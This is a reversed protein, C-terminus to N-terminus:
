LTSSGKFYVIIKAYFANPGIRYAAAAAAAAANLEFLLGFSWFSCVLSWKTTALCEQALDDCMM